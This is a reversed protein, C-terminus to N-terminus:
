AQDKPLAINHVLVGDAFYVDNEEININITQVYEDIIDISSVIEFEGNEKFVYDGIVLGDTQTFMCVEARKIFVPHEFTLKLNGNIVYYEGFTSDSINTIVSLGEEYELDATYFEKWNDEISTDLDKISLSRVVEGLELDEVKKFTGDGMEVLTGYVLCGPDVADCNCNSNQGTSKVVLGQAITFATGVCGTSSYPTVQAWLAVDCPLSQLSLGNTDNYDTNFYKGYMPQTPFAIPTATGYSDTWYFSIAYYNDTGSNAAANRNVRYSLFGCSANVSIYVVTGDGVPVIKQHSDSNSEKKLTAGSYLLARFITTGSLSGANHTYNTNAVLDLETYIDTWTAGNNTSKQIYMTDASDLQGVYATITVSDCGYTTIAISVDNVENRTRIKIYYKIQGKTDTSSKQGTITVLKDTGYTGPASFGVVIAGTALTTPRWGVTNKINSYSGAPNGIWYNGATYYSTRYLSAGDAVLYAGVDSAETDLGRVTLFYSSMFTNPEVTGESAVNADTSLVVRTGPSFITVGGISTRIPLSVNNGNNTLEMEWDLDALVVSVASSNITNGWDNHYWSQRVYITTGFAKGTSVSDGSFNTWTSNDDSWQNTRTIGDLSINIAGDGGTGTGNATINVTSTSKTTSITPATVSVLRRGYISISVAQGIESAQYKILDYRLGYQGNSVQTVQYENGWITTSYTNGRSRGPKTFGGAPTYFYRCFTSQSSADPYLPFYNILDYYEDFQNYIDTM